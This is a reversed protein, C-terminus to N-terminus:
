TVTKKGEIKRRSFLLGILVFLSVAPQQEEAVDGEAGAARGGQVAAGGNTEVVVQEPGQPDSPTEQAAFAARTQLTLAMIVALLITLRKSIGVRRM